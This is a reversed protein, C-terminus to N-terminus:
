LEGLANLIDDLADDQNFEESENVEIEVEGNFYDQIEVLEIWRNGYLDKAMYGVPQLSNVTFTASNKKFSDIRWPNEAFKISGGNVASENDLFYLTVKYQGSALQKVSVRSTDLYPNGKDQGIIVNISDTNSFGQDDIAILTLKYSWSYKGKLLHVTHTNSFYSSNHKIEQVVDSDILVKVTHIKRPASISYYVAFNEAITWGNQPSKINVEIDPDEKPIREECVETPEKAFVYTYNYTVWEATVSDGSYAFTNGENWRQIIDNLGNYGPLTTSPQIVYGVRQEESPTYESVAGACLTDFKITSIPTDVKNPLKYSVSKVAFNEPTNENALKGTIKSITVPKIWAVKNMKESKILKQSLLGNYFNKMVPSNLWWWYANPAMPSGDTNGAWFIAVKSPTYTALWGDGAVKQGNSKVKNSTGSKVGMQPIGPVNFLWVWGAPMNSKDSLINWILYAVEATIPSQEVLKTQKTYIIKGSPDRIELIPNIQAPKGLASLHTYAQALELMPVEGAGLALSYGYPHNTRLSTLGLRQLFPKIKEEQGWALYARVAPINRSHALANKLPIIGKFKGEANNPTLGGVKIPTDFIPTDISSPVTQLLNAYIFPKISSGPQRKAQSVMDNEGEINKNNYDASGVYALIDGNKSDLYVMARNSGGKQQVVGMYKQISDEAIKQIDNDITTVITYGGELLSEQDIGLEAFEENQTIFDQIYFVFHPAKIDTISSKKFDISIAKMFAEKVQNQNIYGLEYMRKLAHDKRGWKYSVTYNKGEFSTTFDIVKELTTLINSASLKTSPNMIIEDIKEVIHTKIDGSLTIQEGRNFVRIDGILKGNTRYPNYKTPSKPISALIASEAVDLESAPKNFYINSASEVGYANNGMFIYNLYLEMIREKKKRTIEKSSLQPNQAKIDDHILNDLQLALVIEKVKRTVNRDNSLLLNKVSQQTITSAWQVWWGFLKSKVTVYWARMIGFWDIGPNSWFTQDEVAIIANIMDTSIQNFEVNQRHQEFLKYLEEEDRDVITTTQSFLSDLWEVSLQPVNPLIKSYFWVIIMIWVIIAGAWWLRLLSILTKKRGWKKSLSSLINGIKKRKKQRHSFQNILDKIRAKAM